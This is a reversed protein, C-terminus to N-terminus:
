KWILPSEIQARPNRSVTNEIDKEKDPNSEHNTSERLDVKPPEEM